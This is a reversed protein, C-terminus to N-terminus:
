SVSGQHRAQEIKEGRLIQFVCIGASARVTEIAVVALQTGHRASIPRAGVTAATSVVRIATIEALARCSVRSEVTLLLNVVAGGAGAGVTLLLTELVRESKSIHLNGVILHSLILRRSQECTSAAHIEDVRVQTLTRVTEGTHVTVVGPVLARRVRTLVAAGALFTQVAVGAGARRPVGAAVAARGDASTFVVGTVVAGGAVLSVVAVDARADGAVTASVTLEQKRLM